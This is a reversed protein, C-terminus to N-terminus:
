PRRGTSASFRGQRLRRAVDAESQVLKHHVYDLHEDMVRQAQDADGAVIAQVLGQHQHTLRELARPDEHDFMLRRNQAVTSTVLEFLGRMVQVMVVNHSAEAIALHFQADANASLATEGRQQHAVMVDFCRRIRDKDAPTARLAAHRATSRELAVRTELVDFRYHPDDQILQALPATAHEHWQPAPACLFTGSGVRSEVLGQGSLRQIAERLATRSVGLDAALQRETPLRQGPQWQRQQVLAHLREIVPDSVRM